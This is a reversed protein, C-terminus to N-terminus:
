EAVEIRNGTRTFRLRGDLIEEAIDMMPKGSTFAHGQIVLRADDASVDIQALVM